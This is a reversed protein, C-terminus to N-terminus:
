ALAEKGEQNVVEHESAIAKRLMAAGNLSVKDVLLTKGVLAPEMLCAVVRVAQGSVLETAQPVKISYITDTASEVANNLGTHQVLGAVPEGVPTLERTVQIGVTVPQGVNFIQVSDLLIAQQIVRAAEHLTQTSMSMTM